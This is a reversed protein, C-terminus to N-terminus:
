VFSEQVQKIIEVLSSPKLSASGVLVGDVGPESVFASVNSADVSGGYLVRLREAVDPGFQETALKRILLMISAAEHPDPPTAGEGSQGAPLNSSIAWIPEYTLAMKSVAAKSGSAFLQQVQATIKATTQGAAREEATEGVCVIPRLGHTILLQVQASIHEETLNLLARQDSHGVISWSVFPKVQQISVLGPVAGAEEWHITQAGLQLNKDEAVLEAAAPLSPYSPCVVVDSTITLHKLHKGVAAVADVEEQHPLKMKWNAAVIPRRPM